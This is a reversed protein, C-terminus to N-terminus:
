QCWDVILSAMSSSPSFRYQQRRIIMVWTSRISFSRLYAARREQTQPGRCAQSLLKRISELKPRLYVGSPRFSFFCRKFSSYSSGTASPILCSFFSTKNQRKEPYPMLVIKAVRRLTPTQYVMSTDSCITSLTSCVGTPGTMFLRWAGM